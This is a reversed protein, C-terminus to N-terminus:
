QVFSSFFLRDLKYFWYVNWSHTFAAQLLSQTIVTFIINYHYVATM